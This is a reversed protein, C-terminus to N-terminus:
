LGSEFGASVADSDVGDTGAEQQGLEEIREEFLAVLLLSALGPRFVLRSLAAFRGEILNAIHHNQETERAHTQNDAM